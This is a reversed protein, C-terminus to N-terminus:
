EPVGLLKALGGRADWDISFSFFPTAAPKPDDILPNRDLESFVLAGAVFRISDTLRIGGGLVLVRQGFLNDRQHPKTVDGVVTVGITAAVRKKLERKKWSLHAQKNVPRLFYFNLAVYPSVEDIVPMWAIGLDMTTLYGHRTNFDGVTTGPLTADLTVQTGLQSVAATIAQLREQVAGRTLQLEISVQRLDQISQSLSSALAVVDAPQLGAATRAAGNLSLVSLLGQLSQMRRSLEGVITAAADVDARTFFPGPTVAASAAPLGLFALAIDSPNMLLLESSLPLYSATLTKVAQNDSAALNTVAAFLGNNLWAQVRPFSLKANTQITEIEAQISLQANVVSALLAQFATLAAQTPTESWISSPSISPVDPAVALTLADRLTTRVTEMAQSDYVQGSAMALVRFQQDAAERAAQQFRTLDDGTLAKTFAFAFCYYRNPNLPRLIAVFKDTSGAGARWVAVPQNPGPFDNQTCDAFPENSERQFVSLSRIGPFTGTLEIPVDFDLVGALYGTSLTVEVTSVGSKPSPAPNNQARAVRGSGCLISVVVAVM